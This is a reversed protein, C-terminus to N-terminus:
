RRGRIRPKEPTTARRWWERWAWGTLSTRWRDRTGMESRVRSCQRWTQWITNDTSIPRFAVEDPDTPVPKKKAADTLKKERKTLAFVVQTQPTVRISQGDAYYLGGAGEAVSERKEPMRTLVATQRLKKFQELDVKISSAKLVGADAYWRGKIELEVGVRIDELRFKISPDVNELDLAVVGVFVELRLIRANSRYGNQL